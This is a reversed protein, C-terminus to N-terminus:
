RSSRKVNKQIVVGVVAAIVIAIVAAIIGIWVKKM